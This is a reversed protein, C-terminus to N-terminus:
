EVYGLIKEAMSHAEAVCQCTFGEPLLGDFFTKTADADFDKKSLPLSLSIAHATPSAIYLEDYAFVADAFNEKYDNWYRNPFERRTLLGGFFQLNEYQPNGSEKNDM